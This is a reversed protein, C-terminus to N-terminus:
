WISRPSFYAMKVHVRQIGLCQHILFFFVFFLMLLLLSLYQSDLATGAEVSLM